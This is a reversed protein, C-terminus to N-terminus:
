CRSGSLLCLPPTGQLVPDFPEQDPDPVPRPRETHPLRKTLEKAAEPGAIHHVATPHQHRPDSHEVTTPELGRWLEAKPDEQGEEEHILPREVRPNHYGLRRFDM